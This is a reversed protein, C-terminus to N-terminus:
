IYRYMSYTNMQRQYTTMDSSYQNVRTQYTRVSTNLQDINASLRRIEGDLRNIENTIRTKETRCAQLATSSNMDEEVGKTRFATEVSAVSVDKCSFAARYREDATKAKSNASTIQTPVASSGSGTLSTIIDNLDKLRKELNTKTSSDQTKQNTARTRDATATALQTEASRKLRLAENYRTEAQKYLRQGEEPTM